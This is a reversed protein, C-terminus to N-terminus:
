LLDAYKTEMEEVVKGIEADLAELQKDMAALAKNAEAVTKYGFTKLQDFAAEAFIRMCDKESLMGCLKGHDVVPAGSVNRKMLFLIAEYIEMQPSLTIVKRTMFDQVLPVKSMPAEKPNRGNDGWGDTTAIPFGSEIWSWV